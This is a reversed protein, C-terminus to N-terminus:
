SHPIKESRSRLEMRNLIGDVDVGPHTLYFRCIQEALEEEVHNRSAIEEVTRGSRVEKMITKVLKHLDKEAPPEPARCDWEIRETGVRHEGPYLTVIMMTVPLRFRRPGCSGPNLYLIGDERKEGYRHSHGCVVIDVGSLERSINKRNHIMYIRFGALTLEQEAPLYEAWGKDVNGRVACVPRIEELQRLIEPKDFDGAHLIRECTKLREKVEERLLGHTDSIIAIRCAEM